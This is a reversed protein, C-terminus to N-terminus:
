GIGARYVALRRQRVVDSMTTNRLGDDTPGFDRPRRHSLRHERSVAGTDGAGCFTVPM